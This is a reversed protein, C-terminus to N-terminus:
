DINPTPNMSTALLRVIRAPDVPKLLYYDFVKDPEGETGVRAGHGTVAIILGPQPRVSKRIEAAVAYGDMGPLGVDCIVVEPPTDAAARIGQTGTHAVAIKHGYLELYIRLSEASDHNDEIILVKRPTGRTMGASLDVPVPTPNEAAVTLEIVFTAGKGPGESLATTTGGHREVVGKVLALGLGLGGRSRDLSRDSQVYAEFVKPLMAADIGIGTDAVIITAKGAAPTALRVSVAGGRDTFKQANGILNGVAQTLRTADGLIWVPEAPVAVTLTLGATEAGKRRDEACERVLRALDLLKRDLTMKGRALRPLDMLDEVLRGLVRLQREMMQRLREVQEPDAGAVRLIEVASSLPALPNRLEHGVTGLVNLLLELGDDITTSTSTGPLTQSAVFSAVSEAIADDIFVNLVLSERSGLPRRLSNELHNVLVIRLIQYDRVVETVSWGNDWRQDGHESAQNRTESSDDGASALSRGLEKLFIPLHDILVDHHVRTASPQEERARETWRAIIAHADRAILDGIAVHTECRLHEIKTGM